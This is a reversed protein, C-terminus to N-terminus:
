LNTVDAFNTSNIYRSFGVIMYHSLKAYQRHNAMSFGDLNTSVVLLRKAPGNM